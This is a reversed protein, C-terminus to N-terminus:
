KKGKRPTKNSIKEVKKVDKAKPKTVQKYGFYAAAATGIMVGISLAAQGATSNLDFGVGNVIGKVEKVFSSLSDHTSIGNEIAFELNYIKESLEQSYLEIQTKTMEQNLVSQNIEENVKEKTVRFLETEVEGKEVQMNYYDPMEAETEAKKEILNTEADIKKIEASKYLADTISSIGADFAQLSQLKAVNNASYNSVGSSAIGIPSYSASNGTALLPSLGANKLDNMAISHQNETVYKSYNFQQEQLDQSKKLLDLSSLNIYPTMYDAVDNYSQSAVPNSSSYQTFKDLDNGTQYWDLFANSVRSNAFTHNKNYTNMAKNEAQTAGGVGASVTASAIASVIAAIELAGM